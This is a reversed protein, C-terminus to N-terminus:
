GEPGSLGKYDVGLLRVWPLKERVSNYLRGDATWFECGLAEALALYHADYAAPRNMEGAIEWARRHLGEPSLLTIPQALIAELAEEGAELSIIGRYVKNRLVSVVEYLLLTPAVIVMGERAWREWLALAHPSDDEGLALKLLLSADVCVPSKM